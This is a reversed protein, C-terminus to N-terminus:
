PVLQISQEFVENDRIVNESGFIYHVGTAVHAHAHTM